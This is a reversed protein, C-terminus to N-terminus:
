MAHLQSPHNGDVVTGADRVMADALGKHYNRLKRVKEGLELM